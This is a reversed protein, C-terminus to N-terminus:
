RFAKWLDTAIVERMKTLDAVRTPQKAAAQAAISSASWAAVVSPRWGTLRLGRAAAAHTVCPETLNIAAKDRCVVCTASYTASTVRIM